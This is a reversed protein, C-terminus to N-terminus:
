RLVSGGGASAFREALMLGTTAALTHQGTFWTTSGGIRIVPADHRGSSIHASVQHYAHLEYAEDLKDKIDRRFRGGVQKAPRTVMVDRLAASADPDGADARRSTQPARAEHVCANNQHATGWCTPTGDEIFGCPVHRRGVAWLLNRASEDIGVLTAPEYHGNGVNHLHELPQKHACFVVDEVIVPPTGQKHQYCKWGSASQQAYTQLPVSTESETHNTFWFRERVPDYKITLWPGNTYLPDSKHTFAQTADSTVFPPVKLGRCVLETVVWVVSGKIQFLADQCVSAVLAAEDVVALTSLM